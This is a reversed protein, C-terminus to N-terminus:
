GRIDDPKGPIFSVSIRRCRIKGDLGFCPELEIEYDNPSPDLWYFPRRDPREPARRLRLGFIVNQHSFGDLQLDLIDELAFTVVAHRDLVFYGRDDVERTMNWAHISLISPARRHLSLHVIEADHFSPVHGFWGILDSGGPIEAYLMEAENM